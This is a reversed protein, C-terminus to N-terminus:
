RPRAPSKEQLWEIVERTVQDRCLDNLVEQRAGDYSRLQVESIGAKAYAKVLSRPGKGGGATPDDGGALVLIPLGKPIRALRAPQCQRGGITLIESWLAASIRFGCRPDNIYKDVEEPDASLWDFRTRPSKIRRNFMKISIAEGLASRHRPGAVKLEAQLLGMGLVRMIGVNGTASSLICTAIDRGHHVIYDQALLAGMSHGFLSIPLKPHRERMETQVARISQLAFRWGHSDAFHGLEDPARATRGHGPLDQAYVAFGAQNLAKAFRAYRGGHESMGHIIQVCGVPSEVPLWVRVFAVAEDNVRLQFETASM